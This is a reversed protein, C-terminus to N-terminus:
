EFGYEYDAKEDELEARYKKQNEIIRKQIYEQTKKDVNEILDKLLEIKMRYYDSFKEWLSSFSFNSILLDIAKCPNSVNQIISIGIPKWVYKEGVKSYPHIVSAALIYRVKPGTECWKLLIEDKIENMVPKDNNRILAHVISSPVKDTFDLFTDLFLLPQAKAITGLIGTCYYASRYDSLLDNKLKLCLKKMSEISKPDDAAFCLKAIQSIEYSFHDHDDIYNYKFLLEFGLDIIESSVDDITKEFVRMSYIEIGANIGETDTALLQIIECLDKDDIAEHARGSRITSYFRAPARSSKISRIIRKAGQKTIPISTQILPFVYSLDNEVAEELLEEVMEPNISNLGWLFGGLLQYPQCNSKGKLSYQEVFEDWIRKPDDCKEALAAAFPWVGPYTSCIIEPILRKIAKEDSAIDYAIQKLKTPEENEKRFYYLRGSSSLLSARANEYASKPALGKELNKLKSLIDKPIKKRERYIVDKISMWGAGWEGQELAIDAFSSIEDFMGARLLGHLKNALLEKAKEATNNDLLLGQTYSIFCAYWADIKNRDAPYYGANRNRSGFDIKM